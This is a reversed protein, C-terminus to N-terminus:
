EGLERAIDQRIPWGGSKAASVTLFRNGGLLQTRALKLVRKWLNGTGVIARFAALEEDLPARRLTLYEGDLIEVAAGSLAELAAIVPGGVDFFPYGVPLVLKKQAGPFAIWSRLTEAAEPVDALGAAAAAFLIDWNGPPVEHACTLRVQRLGTIPPLEGAPGADVAAHLLSVEADALQEGDRVPRGPLRAALEGVSAVLARWAEAAADPDPDSPAPKFEDMAAHTPLWRLCTRPAGTAVPATGTLDQLAKSADHKSISWRSIDLVLTQSGGPYKEWGDLVRRAEPSAFLTKKAERHKMAWDPPEPALPATSIAFTQLVDIGSIEGPQPNMADLRDQFHLFPTDIFALEERPKIRLRVRWDRGNVTPHASPGNLLPQWVQGVGQVVYGSLAASTAKPGPVSPLLDFDAARSAAGGAARTETSVSYSVGPEPLHAIEKLGGFHEGSPGFWVEAERPRMCDIFRHLPLDLELVPAACGKRRGPFDHKAVRWVPPKSIDRGAYGQDGVNPRALDVFGEPFGVRTRESVVIGAAVHVFAHVGFFYPPSAASILTSGLWADPVLRRVTELRLQAETEGLAPFAFPGNRLTSGFSSLPNGFSRGTVTQLGCLWGWHNFERMFTVSLDIPALLAENKRNAEAMVTDMGHAVLLELRGMDTGDDAQGTPAFANPPRRLASLVVPRELPETRPLTIDIFQRALDDQDLSEVRLRPQKADKSTSAAEIWRDYRGFPVIAFKRRAGRRERDPILVSIEGASDPALRWEGPDAITGVSFQPRLRSAGEMPACHELFRAGFRVIDDTLATRQDREAQREVPGAESTTVKGVPLVIRGFRRGGSFLLGAIADTPQLQFFSENDNYTPHFIADGWDEAKLPEFRGFATDPPRGDVSTIALEPEDAAPRRILKLAVEASAHEKVEGDALSISSEISLFKAYQAPDFPKGAALAVIRLVAITRSGGPEAPRDFNSPRFEHALGPKLRVAPNSEPGSVAALLDFRFAGASQASDELQVKWKSLSADGTVEIGYYCVPGPWDPELKNELAPAPRLAIQVAAITRRDVFAATDEASPDDIGGDFWALTANGWPKSMIDVFPQGNFRSGDDGYRALAMKFAVNVRDLLASGQLFEGRDKDYVKIGEALGLTRLAGWGHPDREPPAESLWDQFSNAKVEPPPDSVVSFRRYIKGDAFGGGSQEGYGLLALTDLLIPHKQPAADFNAEATAVVVHDATSGSRLRLAEVRITVPGSSAVGDLRNTLLATEKTLANGYDTPRLQLGQLIRRVAATPSEAPVVVQLCKPGEGFWQTVSDGLDPLCMLSWGTLLDGAASNWEPLTIRLRDPRGKEFLSVIFAEDPEPMLSRRISPKPFVPLSEATSYWGAKRVGQARSGKPAALVRRTESPYASELRSFDGFGGPELGDFSPPLLAVRGIPTAHAALVARVDNAEVDPMADPDAVFLDYGGIWRRLHDGNAHAGNAKLSAAVKWTLRTGTRRAPDSLTRLPGEGKPPAKVASLLEDLSARPGPHLVHVRGSEGRMDRNATKLAMFDLTWPKEFTDLIANVGIETKTRAPSGIAKPPPTKAVLNVPLSRWEGHKIAKDLAPEGDRLRRIFLRRRSGRAKDKAGAGIAELFQDPTVVSSGDGTHASAMLPHPPWTSTQAKDAPAEFVLKFTGAPDVTLVFDKVDPGALRGISREDFNRGAEELADAGYGGLAEIPETLVRLHYRVGTEPYDPKYGEADPSRGFTKLLPATMLFVPADPKGYPEGGTAEYVLQLTAARPSIVADEPKPAPTFVFTEGFDSTGAIDIPVIEYLVSIQKAAIKDQITEFDAARLADMDWRGLLADRLAEPMPTGGNAERFDDIFQYPPRIRSITRLGNADDDIKTVGGARATFTARFENEPIGRVTRTVRYHRLHFEPDHYAGVSAGWSPELDWDLMLGQDTVTPIPQLRPQERNFMRNPPNFLQVSGKESDKTGSKVIEFCANPPSQNPGDIGPFATELAHASVLFTLGFSRADFEPDIAPWASANNEGSEALRAASEMVASLISSRAEEIQAERIALADLNVRSAGNRALEAASTKHDQPLAKDDLRVKSARPETLLDSKGAQEFRLFMDELVDGLTLQDAADGFRTTLEVAYDDEYNAPSPQEALRLFESHIEGRGGTLRHWAKRDSDGVPCAYFTAPATEDLAVARSDIQTHDRPVLQLVFWEGTADKRRTPFLMAWFDTRLIERGKFNQKVDSESPPAPAKALEEDVIADGVKAHEGPPPEPPPNIEVRRGDMSRDPIDSALGLEMFRAVRMRAKDLLGDNFSFGIGLTASRGFARVTISARARGGLGSSSIVGEIALSVALHLSFGVSLKIRKGFVKISLWIEVSVGVMIDIRLYGYYLSESFNDLSLYALLRAEIDFAARAVAAAGFSSSGVRGELHVAGKGKFAIGYLVSADEIRQILGGRLSLHFTDGPKGLDFGLEYPWGLEFHFLGPRIYLTASYDVSRIAKQLPEPLQPKSGVHGNRNSVFRGLFERRPASFYLYGRFTPNRTWEAGPEASVWDHYNVCLWARLNIMFTLDTRLAAVVDLLLPNPLLAERKEDYTSSDRQAASLALMGRLALTLASNDYTPEWAEFKDLSGQYKSVEDLIKVLQNPSTAQEAQNIGAITYRYGFGFGAERLYITGVPTDIPVSLKIAQGYFFFAHRPRDDPRDKRKLELFGLTATLPAWGDLELRGSALFGKASINKPLTSPRVLSPIDGDVTIATGSVKVGALAISVSLGDFRIRPLFEKPPPAGILMEHVNVQISVRDGRDGFNVQGGLGVAADGDFKPTAPYFAISRLEFRFIDFLTMQKPPKLKILFSISRLLVRPDKALPAKEFRIDVGGFNKLLGSAFENKGPNFRASGTITFYFHYSDEQVFGMGLETITVDFRILNCTIPDGSKDIVAHAAQVAVEDGNASRGLTLAISANAEGLLTDPLQGSGMLSGGNFRSGQIAISGSNFRFPMDIGGLRVPEPKIRAALDIGGRGVAFTDIDFQLGAGAASVRNYTLTAQAERGLSFREGGHALDLVFQEYESTPDAGDDPKPMVELDFGLPRYKRVESRKAKISIRDGGTLKVSFDDLDVLAQLDAEPAFTASIRVTLNLALAASRAAPDIDLKGNRIEIRQTLLDGFSGTGPESKPLLALIRDKLSALDAETSVVIEADTAGQKGLKAPRLTGGAHMARVSVEPSGVIDITETLDRPSGDEPGFGQLLRLRGGQLAVLVIDRARGDPDASPKATLSLIRNSRDSSQGTAPSLTGMPEAPGTERELWLDTALRAISNVDPQLVLGVWSAPGFDFVLSPKAAASVSLDFGLASGSLDATATHRVPTLIIQRLAYSRPDLRVEITVFRFVNQAAGSIWDLLEGLLRAAAEALGVVGSVLAGAHSAMRSVASAVMKGLHALLRRLQELSPADPVPPGNPLPIAAILRVLRGAAEATKNALYIALDVPFPEVVKLDVLKTSVQGDSALTIDVRAALTIYLSADEWSQIHLDDIQNELVISAVVISGDVTIPSVKLKTTVTGTIKFPLSKIGTLAATFTAGQGLEDIGFSLITKNTAADWKLTLDRLSCLTEKAGAPGHQFRGNLSKGAPTAVQVRLDGADFALAVALAENEPVFSIDGLFPLSTGFFGLKDGLRWDPLNQLKLDPMPFRPLDLKFGPLRPLDIELGADVAATVDAKKVVADFRWSGLFEVEPGGMGSTLNISLDAHGAVTALVHDDPIGTIGDVISPDFLLSAELAAGAITKAGFVASAGVDIELPQSLMRRLRERMARLEEETPAEGGPQTAVDELTRFQHEKDAGTPKLLKRPVYFGAPAKLSLSATVQDKSLLLEIAHQGTSPENSILSPALKIAFGLGSREALLISDRDDPM